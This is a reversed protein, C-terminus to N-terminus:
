RLSPVRRAPVAKAPLWLRATPSQERAAIYYPIATFREGEQKETGGSPADAQMRGSLIEAHRNELDFRYGVASEPDLKLGAPLTDSVYLLPGLQLAVCGGAEPETTSEIRRVPTDARLAVVDDDKWVRDIVIYGNEAKQTSTRGNITVQYFQRAPRYVYKDGAPMVEGRLWAPVRLHLRMHQEPKGFALAFFGDTFWPSSTNQLMVMRLSDTTVVTTSRVYLNVYVDVGSGAYVLGTANLLTRLAQTRDAGELGPMTASRIGNYLCREVMDAYRVQGTLLFLRASLNLMSVAAPVHDAYSTLAAKRTGGWLTADDTVRREWEAQLRALHRVDKKGPVVPQARLLSDIDWTEDYARQWFMDQLDMSDAPAYALPLRPGGNQAWMSASLLLLLFPFVIKKM